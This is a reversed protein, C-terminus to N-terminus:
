DQEGDYRFVLVKMGPHQEKVHEVVKREWDRYSQSLGHASVFGSAIFSGSLM